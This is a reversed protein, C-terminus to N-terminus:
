SSYSGKLPWCVKCPEYGAQGAEQENQFTIRNESKIKEVWACSRKHYRTSNESAVYVFSETEALVAPTTVYNSVLVTFVLVFDLMLRLIMSNISVSRSEISSM